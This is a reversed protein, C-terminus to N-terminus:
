SANKVVVLSPSRCNRPVTEVPNKQINGTSRIGNEGPKRDLRTLFAGWFISCKQTVDLTNYVESGRTERVDPSVDTSM